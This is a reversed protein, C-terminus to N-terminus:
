ASKASAGRSWQNQKPHNSNLHNVNTHEPKSPKRQIDPSRPAEEIPVEAKSLPVKLVIAMVLFPLPPDRLVIKV